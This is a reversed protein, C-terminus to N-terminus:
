NQIAFDFRVGGTLVAANSSWTGELYTMNNASSLDGQASVASSLSLASLALHVLPFM